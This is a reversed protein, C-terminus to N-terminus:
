RSVSTRNSSSSGSSGPRGERGRWLIDGKRRVHLQVSNRTACWAEAASVQGVQDIHSRQMRGLAPLLGDGHGAQLVCSVPPCCSTLQLHLQQAQQWCTSPEAQM